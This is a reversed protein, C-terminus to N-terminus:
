PNAISIQGTVYVTVTRTEGGNPSNVTVTAQSFPSASYGSLAFEAQINADPNPRKFVIDVATVPNLTDTSCYTGSSDTVCIKSIHHNLGASYVQVPTDGADYQLNNNTDAFLFFCTLPNPCPTNAITDFHMGYAVNFNQIAGQTLGQVSVGYVQAERVSIAVDYALDTLLTASNFRSYNALILISILVFIGMVVLLEILTFGKRYPKKKM